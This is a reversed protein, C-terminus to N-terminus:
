YIPPIFRQTQKKDYIHNKITFCIAYIDCVVLAILEIIMIIIGINEIINM